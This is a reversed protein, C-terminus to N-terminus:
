QKDDNIEGKNQTTILKEVKSSLIDLKENIANLDCIQVSKTSTTNNEIKNLEYAILTYRGQADAKKEYLINSDSDKLYVTQNAGVIFAKAGEIGSVFTLPLYTTQPHQIQTAYPYNNYPNNYNMM